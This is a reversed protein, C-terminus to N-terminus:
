PELTSRPVYPSSMGSLRQDVSDGNTQTLRIRVPLFQWDPALWLEVGLASDSQPVRQLRWAVVPGAPLDLTEREMLRFEWTDIHGPSAVPVQWTQGAMLPDRATALGHALQFFLSLRDQTGQPLGDPSAVGDVARRQQPWDFHLQRQKRAHDTFTDPALGQASWHGESRQRRSGILFARVEMDAQYRDGEVAWRLTSSARYRLGKATGQVEYQWELPAPPLWALTPPGAPTPPDSPPAPTVQPAEATRALAVPPPAVLPEANPLALAGPAAEPPLVPDPAAANSPLREVREPTRAQVRHPPTPRSPPAPLPEVTAPPTAVLTVAVPETPVVVPAPHWLLALALLHAMLALGAACVHRRGVTSGPDSALPM